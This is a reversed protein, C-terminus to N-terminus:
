DSQAAPDTDDEVAALAKAISAQAQDLWRQCIRVLEEGRQWLRLSEELGLGGSELEAVIATLEDRAQEFPLTPDSSGKADAM